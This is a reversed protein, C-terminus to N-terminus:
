IRISTRHQNDNAPFPTPAWELDWVSTHTATEDDAAIADTLVFTSVLAIGIRVLSQYEM